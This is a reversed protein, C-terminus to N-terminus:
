RERPLAPPARAPPEEPRNLYLYATLALLALIALRRLLDERKSAPSAEEAREAAQLAAALEPGLARLRECLAGTARLAMPVRASAEDLSGALAQAWLTEEADTEPERVPLALARSLALAARLLHIDFVEPRIGYFAACGARPRGQALRMLLLAAARPPLARLVPTLEATSLRAADPPPSM